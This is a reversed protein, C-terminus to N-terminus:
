YDQSSKRWGTKVPDFSGKANGFLSIFFYDFQKKITELGNFWRCLM